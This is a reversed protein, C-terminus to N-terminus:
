AINMHKHVYIFNTSVLCFDSVNHDQFFFTAAKVEVGRM